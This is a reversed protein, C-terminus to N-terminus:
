CCGGVPGSNPNGINGPYGGSPGGTGSSNGDSSGNGGGSGGWGGSGNGGGNTPGSPEPSYSASGGQNSGTSQLGGYRMGGGGGVEGESNKIIKLAPNSLFGAALGPAISFHGNLISTAAEGLVMKGGLAKVALGGMGASVEGAVASIIIKTKNFGKGGMMEGIAESFGGVIGSTVIGESLDFTGLAAGFLGSVTAAVIIDKVDGGSAMASMGGNIFGYVGEIIGGVAGEGNPDIGVAPNNGTYVYFNSGGAFGIPDRSVFRGLKPDYWRNRMYVLGIDDDSFVGFEGVYRYNNADNQGGVTKGFADYAYGQVFNQNTDMLGTVDGRGNSLYYFKNGQRDKVSIGPNFIKLINGSGDTEILVSNGSYFYNIVEKPTIKQVRRNYGDYVFSVTGSPTTAKILRNLADWAYITTGASSSRQIINGSGDYSFSEGLGNTVQNGADYSLTQSVGNQGLTVRNGVGDYGYTTMGRPGPYTVGTLQYLGDYNYTTSGILESMALINGVNDYIYTYSSFLEGHSNMNQLAQLRNNVSIYSLLSEAGNPYLASQLNGVSDYQFTTLGGDVDAVSKLRNNQYYDYTISGSVLNNQVSVLHLPDYTYNLTFNRAVDRMVALRNLADYSYTKLGVGDVMSLLNGNGDYTYSLSPTGDSFRAFKLRNNKYYSLTKTIGRSDTSMLANLAGDYTITAGKGLSDTSSKTLGQENYTFITRHNNSDTFALLENLADYMFEAHRVDPTGYALYIDTVNDNGGYIFKKQMGNRDKTLVLHGNADYSFQEYTNDPYNIQDLFTQNAADYVFTVSRQLADTASILHGRDDHIFTSLSSGITQPAGPAPELLSSLNGNADYSYTATHQGADTLSSLRGYGDYAFTTKRGPENVYLLNGNADYDYTRLVLDKDQSSMKRTFSYTFPSGSFFVTHTLNNNFTFSASYGEADQTYTMNGLADYAMSVAHGNGDMFNTCLNNKDWTYDQIYLRGGMPFKKQVMRSTSDYVDTEILGNPGSTSTLHNGSGDISYDYTYMVQGQGNQIQRVPNNFGSTNSECIYTINRYGPPALPEEIQKLTVVTTPNSNNSSYLFSYYQYTANLNSPSRNVQSVPIGPSSVNYSVPASNFSITDGASNTVQKLQNGYLNYWVAYYPNQNVVSVPAPNDYYTLTVAWNSGTETYLRIGSQGYTGAPFYNGTGFTQTFYYFSQYTFTVSNQNLDAMGQLYAVNSPGGLNTLVSFTYSYGYKDTLVYTVGANNLNQLSYFCGQPAQYTNGGDSSNFTWTQHPLVLLIKNGNTNSVPIFLCMDYNSMWGPGLEGFASSIGNHFYREYKMPFGNRHYSFDTVTAWADGTFTNVNFGTNNQAPQSGNGVVLSEDVSGASNVDPSGDGYDGGTDQQAWLAGLGALFFVLSIFLCIKKM